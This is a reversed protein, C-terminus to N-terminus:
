LLQSTFPYYEIDPSAEGQRHRVWPGVVQRRCTARPPHKTLPVRAAQILSNEPSPVGMGEGTVHVVWTLAHKCLARRRTMVDFM